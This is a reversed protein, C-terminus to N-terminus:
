LIASLANLNTDISTIYFGLLAVTLMSAVISYSQLYGMNDQISRGFWASFIAISFVYVLSFLYVLVEYNPLALFMLTIAVIVSFIAAISLRTFIANGIIEAWQERNARAGAQNLVRHYVATM